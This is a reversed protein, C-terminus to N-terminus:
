YLRRRIPEEVVYDSRSFRKPHHLSFSSDHVHFLRTILSKNLARSGNTYGTVFVAM